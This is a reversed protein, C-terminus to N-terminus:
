RKDFDSHESCVHLFFFFFFRKITRGHGLDINLTLYSFSTYCDLCLSFSNEVYGMTFVHRDPEM